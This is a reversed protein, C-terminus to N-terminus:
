KEASKMDIMIISIEKNKPMFWSVDTKRVLKKEMFLDIDKEDLHYYYRVYDRAQSLNDFPQGFEIDRDERTYSVGRADLFACISPGTEFSRAKGRAIREPKSVDTFRESKHDRDKRNAIDVAKLKGERSRPAIVVVLDSVLEKLTDWDQEVAGFYSVVAANFRKGSLVRHWDGTIVEVNEIGDSILMHMLNATAHPDIDNATYSAVLTSLHRALTGTGCAIECCTFSEDMFPSIIEKLQQHYGTYESAREYWGASERTWKYLSGKINEPTIKITETESDDPETNEIDTINETM